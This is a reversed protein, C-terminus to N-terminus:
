IEHNFETGHVLYDKIGYVYSLIYITSYSINYDIHFQINYKKIFNYITKNQMGLWFLCYIEDETFYSIFLDIIEKTDILEKNSEIFNIMFAIYEFYMSRKFTSNLGYDFDKFEKNFMYILNNIIVEKPINDNESLHFERCISMFRHKYVFFCNPGIVWEESNHFKLSEVKKEKTEIYKFFLDYFNRIQSDKVQLDLLKAQQDFIKRQEEAIRNARESEAQQNKLELKQRALEKGQIYLSLALFAFALGSFLTNLAGYSDGYTGYKRGMIQAYSNADDREIFTNFDHKFPIQVPTKYFDFFSVLYPFFYWFTFLLILFFSFIISVRYRFLSNLKNKQSEIM